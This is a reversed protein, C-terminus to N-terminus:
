RLAARVKGLKNRVNKWLSRQSVENLGMHVAWREGTSCLGGRHIGRNGNFMVVTDVASYSQEHAAMIKSMDSGEVIDDGFHSTSQFATPLAAFRKREFEGRFRARYYGDSCELGFMQQHVKDLIKGAILSFNSRHWRTSGPTFCFPGNSAEVPALYFFLKQSDARFDYHLYSHASTALGVDAYCHKYWSQQPHSYHLDLYATELACGQIQEALAWAGCRKLHRIISRGLRSYEAIAAHQRHAPQQQGRARLHQRLNQSQHLWQSSTGAPLQLEAIGADLFTKGAPNQALFHKSVSRQQRAIIQLEDQMMSLSQETSRTLWTLTDAHAYNLAHLLRLLDTKHPQIQRQYDALAGADLSGACAEFADFIADIHGVCQSIAADEQASIQPFKAFAPHSHYDIIPVRMASVSSSLPEPPSTALM